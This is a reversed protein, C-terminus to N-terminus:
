RMRTVAIVCLFKSSMNRMAEYYSSLHWCPRGRYSLLNSVWLQESYSGLAAMRIEIMMFGAAAGLVVNM